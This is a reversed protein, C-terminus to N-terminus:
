GLLSALERALAEGPPEPAEHGIGPLVTLRGDLGAGALVESLRRADALGEDREGALLRARLGLSAAAQLREPAPPGALDDLGTAVALVAAAPLGALALDVAVGGGQSFGAVVLPPDGEVRSVVAALQATADAQARERDDWVFFGPCPEQSSRAVAVTLGAAAADSWHLAFEDADQGWGHLALVVARPTRPRSQPAAAPVVVPEPRGPAPALAEARASEEAVAAFDARGRLPELDDDDLLWDRPWFHGRELGLRLDAVAARPDGLRSHACALWFPVEGKDPFLELAAVAYPLTGAHDGAAFHAFAATRLPQFRGTAAAEDVSLTM